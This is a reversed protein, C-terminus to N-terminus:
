AHLAKVLVDAVREQQAETIGPYLPLSLIEAAAAEAAPFDGAHHGLDRFAGQLHIPIPYHIGADIGAAQLRSLVEDRRPVRVVFLHWVHENGALTSPLQVHDVDALLAGYRAAAARRQANWEDLHQLKLTLVVAQLTDLRSNCGLEPHVYKATSGHNRLARVHAAIDDDGTLVAGADGFAGLNKGPYFSTGTAIGFGGARAGHRSAGQAQAADEILLLEGQSAVEHLEEMPAVQGYLHVPVVARTRPGLAEAVRAPDILHTAPDADVLVPRGGARVVAEATAIFTNAPIVVEDGRGVGSARLALELADTGNAVGICHAVGSYRAFQEEFAAVEPGLIFAARELVSELLPRADDAIARQQISLDVLPIREM